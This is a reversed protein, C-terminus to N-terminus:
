ELAATCRQPEASLERAFFGHTIAGRSAASRGAALIGLIADEVASIQSKTKDPTGAESKRGLRFGADTAALMLAFFALYIIIENTGQLFGANV